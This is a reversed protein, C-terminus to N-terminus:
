FPAREAITQVLNQVLGRCPRHSLRFGFEARNRKGSRPHVSAFMIQGSGLLAPNGTRYLYHPPAHHRGTHPHTPQHGFRQLRTSRPLPIGRFRIHRSLSMYQSPSWLDLFRHRRQRTFAKHCSFTHRSLEHYRFRRRFTFTCPCSFRRHCMFGSRDWERCPRHYM